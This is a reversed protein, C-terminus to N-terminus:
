YFSDFSLLDSEIQHLACTNPFGKTARNIFTICFTSELGKRQYSGDVTVFIDLIGDDGIFVLGNRQYFDIIDKHVLRMNTEYYCNMIKFIFGTMRNYSRKHSHRINQIYSIAKVGQYGNDNIFPEWTTRGGIHFEINGLYIITQANIMEAGQRLFKISPLAGYERLSNLTAFM